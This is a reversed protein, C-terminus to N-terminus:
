PATRGARSCGQNQSYTVRPWWFDYSLTLAPGFTEGRRLQVLLPRVPVQEPSASPCANTGCVLLPVAHARPREEIRRLSRGLLAVSATPPLPGAIQAVVAFQAADREIIRDLASPEGPEAFRATREEEMAGLAKLAEARAKRHEAQLALVYAKLVESEICGPVGPVPAAVPPPPGPPASPELPTASTAACGAALTVFAWGISSRM